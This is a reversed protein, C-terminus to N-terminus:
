PAVTFRLRPNRARSILGKLIYASLLPWNLETARDLIDPDSLEHSGDVWATTVDVGRIRLGVPIARPVHHDLYLALAM